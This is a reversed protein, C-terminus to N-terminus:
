GSDRGLDRKGFPSLAPVKSTDCPRTNPLVWGTLLVNIQCKSFLMANTEDTHSCIRYSNHKRSIDADAVAQAEHVGIFCGNHRSAHIM